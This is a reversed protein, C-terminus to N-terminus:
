LDRTSSGYKLASSLTRVSAQLTARVEHAVVSLDSLFLDLYDAIQEAGVPDRRHFREVSKRDAAL